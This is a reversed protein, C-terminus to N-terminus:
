SQKANGRQLREREAENVWGDAKKFSILHTPRDATLHKLYVLVHSQCWPKLMGDYSLYLVRM